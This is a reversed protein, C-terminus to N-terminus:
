RSSRCHSSAIPLILHSPKSGPRLIDLRACRPGTAIVGGNFLSQRDPCAKFTVATEGDTLKGAEDWFAAADPDFLLAIHRRERAPISITAAAGPALVVFLKSAAYRGGGLPKADISSRVPFLALPGVSLSAHRWGSPLLDGVDSGCGRLLPTRRPHPSSQTPATANRSGSTPAAAKSVAAAAAFLLLAITSVAVARIPPSCDRV